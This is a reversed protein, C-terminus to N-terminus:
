CLTNLMLYDRERQLKAATADDHNEKAKKIQHALRDLEARAKNAASRSANTRHNGLHSM